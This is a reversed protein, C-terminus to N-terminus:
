ESRQQKKSRWKHWLWYPLVFWQTGGILFLVIWETIYQWLPGYINFLHYAISTPMFSDLIRPLVLGSPFGLFMMALEAGMRPEGPTMGVFLLVLACLVWVAVIAFFLKRKM